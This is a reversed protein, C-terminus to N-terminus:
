RANDLYAGSEPELLKKWNDKDLPINKKVQPKQHYNYTGEKEIQVKAEVVTMLEGNLRVIDNTKIIFTMTDPTSVGDKEFGSVNPYLPQNDSLADTLEIIMDYYQKHYISISKATTIEVSANAIVNNTEDTHARQSDYKFVVISNINTGDKNILISLEPPHYIESQKDAECVVTMGLILSLMLTIIKM